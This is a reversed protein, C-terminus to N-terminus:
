RANGPEFGPNGDRNGRLRPPSTVREADTARVFDTGDTLLASIQNSWFLNYMMQAAGGSFDCIGRGRSQSGNLIILNNLILAPSDGLLFIGNSDNRM